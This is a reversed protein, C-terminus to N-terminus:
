REFYCSSARPPIHPLSLVSSCFMIRSSHQHSLMLPLNMSRVGQGTLFFNQVTLERATSRIRFRFTCKISAVNHVKMGTYVCIIAGMLHPNPARSVFGQIDDEPALMLSKASIAESSRPCPKSVATHRQIIVHLMLYTRLALGVGAHV